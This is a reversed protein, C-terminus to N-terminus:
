WRWKQWKRTATHLSSLLSLFHLYFFWSSVLLFTWPLLSLPFFAFLSILFSCFNWLHIQWSRAASKNDNIQSSNQQQVIRNVHLKWLITISYIIHCCPKSLKRLLLLEKLLMNVTEDMWLSKLFCILNMHFEAPGWQYPHPKHANKNAKESQNLDMVYLIFFIKFAM